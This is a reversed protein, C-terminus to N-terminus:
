NDSKTLIKITSNRLIILLAVTSGLIYIAFYILIELIPLNINNATLQNIFLIVFAMGSIGILVHELLMQFLVQPKSTGLSRLIAIYSFRQYTSLLAIFFSIICILFYILELMNKKFNLSSQLPRISNSLQDDNLIFIFESADTSNELLGRENLFEKFESLQRTNKIVFSSKSVLPEKIMDLDGRHYIEWATDDYYYYDDFNDLLSRAPVIIDGGSLHFSNSSEVLIRDYEYSGCITYVLGKSLDKTMKEAAVNSYAYFENAYEGLIGITDGYSLNYSDLHMKDVICIPTDESFMAMDYGNALTIKLGKHLLTSQDLNTTGIVKAQASLDIYLKGDIDTLSVNGYPAFVFAYYTTDLLENKIFGTDVISNVLELPISRWTHLSERCKIEGTVAVNDYLSNIEAEDVKINIVFRYFLMFLIISVLLLLLSRRKQRYLNKLTYKIIM